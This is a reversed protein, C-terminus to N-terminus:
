FGIGRLYEVMRKSRRAESVADEQGPVAEGPVATVWRNYGIDLLAQRVGPFDVNQAQGVDVWKPLYYGDERRTSESYDQLHVYNLQSRFDHLSQVPDYGWLAAHSVDICLRAKHLYSM